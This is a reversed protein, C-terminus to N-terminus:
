EVNTPPEEGWPTVQRGRPTLNQLRRWRRFRRPLADTGHMGPPFPSGFPIAAVRRQLTPRLGLITSRGPHNTWRIFIEAIDADDRSAMCRVEVSEGPAIQTVHDAFVNSHWSSDSEIPVCVDILHGYLEVEYANDDGANTLRLFAVRIAEPDYNDIVSQKTLRNEIVLQARPRDFWRLVLTTTASM